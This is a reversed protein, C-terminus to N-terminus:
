QATRERELLKRKRATGWRYGSIGGDAAIVRHCPIAHAVPNTAVARAVARAAGPAGV